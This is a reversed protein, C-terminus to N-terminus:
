DVEIDRIGQIVEKKSYLTYVKSIFNIPQNIDKFEKPHKQTHNPQQRMFKDHKYGVDGRIRSHAFFCFDLVPYDLVTYRSKLWQM